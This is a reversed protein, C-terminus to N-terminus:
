RKTRWLDEKVDEILATMKSSHGQPRFYEEDREEVRQLASGVGAGAAATGGLFCLPCHLVVDKTKGGDDVNGKEAEDL